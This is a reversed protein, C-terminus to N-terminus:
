ELKMWMFLDIELSLGRTFGEVLLEILSEKFRAPLANASTMFLSARPVSLGALFGLLGLERRRLAILRLDDAGRGEMPSM